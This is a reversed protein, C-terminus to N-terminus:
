YDWHTEFFTAFFIDTCSRQRLLGNGLRIRLQLEAMCGKGAKLNRIMTCSVAM